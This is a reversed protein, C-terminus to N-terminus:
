LFCRQITVTSRPITLFSDMYQYPYVDKQTMLVLDEEIQHEQDPMLTAPQYPCNRYDEHVHITEGEERVVTM